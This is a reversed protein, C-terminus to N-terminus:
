VIKLLEQETTYYNVEPGKLTRSALTVLQLSGDVDEQLLCAGLAVKSADTLLIFPKGAKPYYLLVSKCILTKMEEFANIEVEKWRWKVGKKTLEFLPASARALECTFESCFNILGLFSQVERVNKPPAFNRISEIKEPDPRLRDVTVIHGLFKLEVQFFKIKDFNLTFGEDLVRSFLIEIHKLHEDFSEVLNLGVCGTTM